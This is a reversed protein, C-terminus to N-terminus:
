HAYRQTWERATEEYESRNEKYKLGIRPRMCIDPNPETLLSCISLLINPITLAPSWERMLIDLGINGNADINPHYIPTTFKIHPPIGPYDDPIMVDFMFVGDEYPSGTPGFIMGKWHTLDGENALGVSYVTSLENNVYELENQLRRDKLEMVNM